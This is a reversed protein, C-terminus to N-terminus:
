RPTLALWAGFQAGNKFQHFDGVTAVLAYAAIPGVRMLGNAAKAQADDKIYANIRKQGTGNARELFREQVM